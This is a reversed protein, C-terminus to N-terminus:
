FTDHIKEWLNAAEPSIYARKQYGRKGTCRESVMSAHGSGVLSDFFRQAGPADLDFAQRIHGRGKVPKQPAAIGVPVGDCDYGEPGLTSQLLEYLSANALVFRAAVQGSTTSIDIM